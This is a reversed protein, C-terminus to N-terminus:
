RSISLSGCHCRQSSPTSVSVPRTRCCSNFSAMADPLSARTAANKRPKWCPRCYELRRGRSLEPLVMRRVRRCARDSGVVLMAAVGVMVTFRFPRPLFGVDNCGTTFPPNLIRDINQRTDWRHNRAANQKHRGIGTRSLDPVREAGTMWCPRRWNVTTNSDLGCHTQTTKWFGFREFSEAAHPQLGMVRSGNREGTIKRSDLM